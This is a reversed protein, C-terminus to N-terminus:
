HQFCWSPLIQATVTPAGPVSFVCLHVGNIRWKNGNSVFHYFPMVICVSRYEYTHRNSPNRKKNKSAETHPWAPIGDQLIHLHIHTYDIADFGCGVRGYLFMDWLTKSKWYVPRAPFIQSWLDTWDVNSFSLFFITSTLSCVDGQTLLYMDSLIQTSMERLPAGSLGGTEKRNKSILSEDRSVTTNSIILGAVLRQCIFFLCFYVFLVCMMYICHKDTITLLSWFM